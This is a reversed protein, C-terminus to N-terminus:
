FELEYEAEFVKDLIEKPYVGVSGFRPDHTKDIQIGEERCIRAAARGLKGAVRLNVHYDHKAAYGSIAYYEPRTTTKAELELLRGSHEELKKEQGFIAKGMQMLYEGISVPALPPPSRKEKELKEWLTHVKARVSHNYNSAVYLSESKTLLFMPRKEGKKDIYDVVEFPLHDEAIWAPEMAKIARMLNDHRKRLLKALDVSSIKEESSDSLTTTIIEM